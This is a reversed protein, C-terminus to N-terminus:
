AGVNNTLDELILAMDISSQVVDYDTVVKGIIKHTTVYRAKVIEGMSNYTTHFDVVTCLRPFKHRTKFTTGIPYKQDIREM